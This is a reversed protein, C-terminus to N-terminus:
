VISVLANHPSCSHAQYMASAVMDTHHSSLIGTGTELEKSGSGKRENKLQKLLVPLDTM